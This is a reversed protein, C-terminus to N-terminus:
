ERRGVRGPVELERLLLERQKTEKTGPRVIRLRILIKFGNGHHVAVCLLLLLLVSM